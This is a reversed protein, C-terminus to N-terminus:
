NSSTTSKKLKTIIGIPKADRKDKKSTKKKKKKRHKRQIDSWNRKSKKTTSAKSRDIRGIRDSVLNVNGFGFINGFIYNIYKVDVHRTSVASTASDVVGEGDGDGNIDSNINSCFRWLGHQHRRRWSLASVGGTGGCWWYICCTWILVVVM